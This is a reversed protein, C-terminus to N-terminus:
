GDNVMMLRGDGHVKFFAMALMALRRRGFDGHVAIVHPIPLGRPEKPPFALFALSM